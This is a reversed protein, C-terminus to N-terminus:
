RIMWRPYVVVVVPVGGYSRSVQDDDLFIYRPLSWRGLDVVVVNAGVFVDEEVARPLNLEVRVNRRHFRDMRVGQGRWLGRGVASKGGAM